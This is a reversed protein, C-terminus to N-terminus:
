LDDFQNPVISPARSNTRVSTARHRFRRSTLFRGKQFRSARASATISRGRGLDAARCLGLYIPVLMLGAGHAIAVPFSWLGWNRRDYGRWHGRIAGTSSGSSVSRAVAARYIAETVEFDDVGAVHEVINRGADDWIDICFAFHRKDEHVLGVRSTTALQYRYSM